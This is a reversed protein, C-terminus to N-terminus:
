TRREPPRMKGFESLIYACYIGIDRGRTAFNVGVGAMFTDGSAYQCYNCTGTANPDVLYAGQAAAFAGAYQGCTQGAPTTFTFTENIGCVVPVKHLATSIMGSVLFRFPNVNYLFKNYFVNLQPGPITVGCLLSFIVLLFPNFLAAIFISPSLAAVAQGLTVSFIETILVM